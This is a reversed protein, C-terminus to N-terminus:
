HADDKSGNRSLYSGYAQVVRLASTDLQRAHELRKGAERKQGALDLIMGAHLDKFIGYWDPGSLKDIADIAQKSEGPTAQTWATLLAAALDTIPGRVSQALQQRAVQYQKQKLARVGLVLRAIRDEKDIQLVHDALRVAEEVDGNLLVSLFTRDLLDNNHPDSRMAQRYFNAAAGPDRERSAHQAALFSGSATLHAAAQSAQNGQARAAHPGFTVLALAALAPLARLSISSIV